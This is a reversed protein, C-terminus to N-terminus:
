RIGHGSGGALVSTPSIWAGMKQPRELTQPAGGGGGGEGGGGGGGPLRSEIRFMDSAAELACARTLAMQAFLRAIGMVYTLGLGRPLASRSPGVSGGVPLGFSM